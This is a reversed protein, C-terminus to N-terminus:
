NALTVNLRKGTAFYKYLNQDSSPFGLIPLSLEVHTEDEVSMLVAVYFFSNGEIVYSKLYIKLVEQDEDIYEYIEDPDSLTSELYNDYNYFDELSIDEDSRLQLIHALFTSKKLEIEELIEEPIEFQNKSDNNKVDTENTIQKDRQYYRVIEDSCTLTRYFVFSPSNDVYTCILIFHFIHSDVTIDLIHTYFKQELENEVVWVEHPNSLALNLYHESGLIENHGENEPLNYKRRVLSEEKELEQMFPRYFSLICEESCFGRDSNEEVFHIQSLDDLKKRCNECFYLEKIM